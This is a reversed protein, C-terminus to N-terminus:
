TLLYYKPYTSIWGCFHRPAAIILSSRGIVKENHRINEYKRKQFGLFLNRRNRQHKKCLNFFFFLGVVLYEDSISGMQVSVIRSNTKARFLESSQQNHYKLKEKTTIKKFASLQQGPINNNLIRQATQTKLGVLAIQHSPLSSSPEVSTCNPIIIRSIIM